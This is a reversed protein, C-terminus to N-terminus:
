RAGDGAFAVDRIGAEVLGDLVAVVDAVRTGDHADLVVRRDPDADKLTVVRQVVADISDSAFPGVAYRLRRSGPEIAFRRSADGNWELGADEGTAFVRRGEFGPVVKVHVDIPDLPVTTPNPGADKPLYAALKGELVKFKLTLLFFVLLLFTVDIMPTMEMEEKVASTPEPRKRKRRAM